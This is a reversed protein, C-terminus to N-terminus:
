DRVFPLSFWAKRKVDHKARRLHLGRNRRVREAQGGSDRRDSREMGQGPASRAESCPMEGSAEATVGAADRGSRLHGGRNEPFVDDANYDERDPSGRLTAGARLHLEVNSKLFIPGSLFVGGPVVVRGGGAEACADVAKQMAATNLTTGDGVAGYDMVNFDTATM